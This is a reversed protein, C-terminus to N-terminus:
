GRPRSVEPSRTHRAGFEEGLGEKPARESTTVGRKAVRNRDPPLIRHGTHRVRWFATEQGQGLGGTARALPSRAGEFNPKGFPDKESLM